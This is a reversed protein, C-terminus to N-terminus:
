EYQKVGLKEVQEKFEDCPLTDLVITMSDKEVCYWVEEVRHSAWGGWVNIFDGVRPIYSLHECRHLVVPTGEIHHISYDRKTRILIEM